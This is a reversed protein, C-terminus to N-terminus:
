YAGYISPHPESQMITNFSVEHFSQVAEETTEFMEFLDDVRLLERIVGSAPSVAALKLDRERTMAEQVCCSLMEVGVSDVCRVQSCDLVIRPRDSELLPQLDALFAPAHELNLQEPLEMVIVPRSTNM